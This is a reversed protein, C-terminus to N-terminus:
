RVEFARLVAAALDRARQVPMPERQLLSQGVLPGVLMGYVLLPDADPALQGDAVARRIRDCIRDEVPGWHELILRGLEPDSSDAIALNRGVEVPDRFYEALAVVLEAMDDAINGTDPVVVRNHHLRLGEGVLHSRTPWRRYVTTRHVGAREAVEAVSFDRRGERFLALVVSGVADGV